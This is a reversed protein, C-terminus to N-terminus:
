SDPSVLIVISRGEVTCRDGEFPIETGAECIDDPSAKATDAFRFWTRDGVIPVAFDHPSDDMNMMVHIDAELPAEGGLTFALTRSGGNDWDAQDLELGHWRIDNQGRRNLHGTLFTNRQLSQHRRRLGIM